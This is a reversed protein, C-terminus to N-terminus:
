QLKGYPVEKTKGYVVVFTCCMRGKKQLEPFNKIIVCSERLHFRYKM